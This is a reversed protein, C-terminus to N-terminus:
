PEPNFVTTFSFRCEAALANGSRDDVAAAPIHVTYGTSYDLNVTPAIELVNADIRYTYEVPTNYVSDTVTIENFNLGEFIATIVTM